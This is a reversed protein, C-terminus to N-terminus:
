LEACGPEITMTNGSLTVADISLTSATFGLRGAIRVVTDLASSVASRIGADENIEARPAAFTLTRGDVFACVFNNICNM